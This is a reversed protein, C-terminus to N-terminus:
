TKLAFHVLSGLIVEEACVIFRSMYFHLALTLLIISSCSKLSQGLIGNEVASVKRNIMMIRMTNATKNRQKTTM